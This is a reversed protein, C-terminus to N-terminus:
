GHVPVLHQYDWNRIKAKRNLFWISDTEKSRDWHRLNLSSVEVGLISFANSSVIEELDGNTFIPQSVTAISNLLFVLGLYDVYFKVLAIFKYM